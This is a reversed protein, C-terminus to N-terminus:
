LRQLLMAGFTYPANDFKWNMLYSRGNDWVPAGVREFLGTTLFARHLDDACSLRNQERPDKGVGVIGPAINGYDFTLALLGGPKLCRGMEAMAALKDPYDLHEMVCISYAHDFWADPFPLARLNAAHATAKWGMTRAVANGNEALAPNLDVAHVEYGLSALYAFFLSSAGGADLLRMGPALKPLTARMAWAAEWFVFWPYRRDDAADPLPRYDKRQALGLDLAADEGAQGPLTGIWSSLSLGRERVARVLAGLGEVHPRAWPEDLECRDMTRNVGPQHRSPEVPGLLRAWAATREEAQAQTFADNEHTAANFYRTADHRAADAETVRAPPWSGKARRALTRALWDALGAIPDGKALMTRGAWAALADGGEGTLCAQEFSAYDRCRSVLGYWDYLLSEPLPLPEAVAISKGAVAAEILTTSLASATVDAALVWERVSGEKILRVGRPVGGLRQRCFARVAEMGTAPRPRFVVEARPSLRSLWDFLEALSDLCFRRLGEMEGRDAGLSALFDLKGDSLFGWRYNEPVFIWRRQPDLGYRAALTRRDPFFRRYPEAYLGLAPNGNLFVNDPAVGASVLFERSFDGWAHHLVNKRAFEDGPAKVKQHAGYFLQEWALNCHAAQPWAAIYDQTALAGKAFYLFPHAVVAPEFERLCEGAHQYINRVRVSVGHRRRLHAAVACAVDMERAVHEVLILIGIRQRNM